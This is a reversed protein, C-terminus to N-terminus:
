WSIKINKCHVHEVFIFGGKGEIKQLTNLSFGLGWDFIFLLLINVLFFEVPNLPKGKIFYIQKSFQPQSKLPFNYRVMMSWWSSSWLLEKVTCCILQISDSSPELITFSILAICFLESVLRLSVTSDM